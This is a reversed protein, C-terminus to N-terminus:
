PTSVATPWRSLDLEPMLRALTGVDDRYREVLERVLGEPLEGAAKARRNRPRRASAEGDFRAPDLGVFEAATRRAEAPETTVEEYTLVLLRDRSVHALARAVQEAYLGRHFADVVAASHSLGRRLLFELASHFRDVPDRLLLLVRAAPAAEALAPITWPDYVYCPTWEGAIGGPPRAFWAHYRAIDSATLRRDSFGDFFHVEKPVGPARYVDPHRALESFWWSTGGRQVGVGVFDPPAAHWGPPCPPPPRDAM